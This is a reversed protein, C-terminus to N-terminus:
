KNKNEERALKERIAEEMIDRQSKGAKASEIKLRRHLDGDVILGVYKDTINMSAM